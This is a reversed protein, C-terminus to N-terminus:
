RPPVRPELAPPSALVSREVDCTHTKTSGVLEIAIDSTPAFAAFDFIPQIGKDWAPTTPAPRQAKIQPEASTSALTMVAICLAWTAATRPSRAGLRTTVAEM